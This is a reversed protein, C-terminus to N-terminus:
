VGDPDDLDGLDPIQLHAVSKRWNENWNRKVLDRRSLCGSKDKDLRQFLAMIASIDEKEVKQLAVLMFILFEAKDVKGDCDMDMAKIDSLTLTRSMFEKEANRRKKNMYVSAVRALFEGVVAVAFPLFVIGALKMSQTQLHYDGFGITFAAVVIWYISYCPLVHHTQIQYYDLTARSAPTSTM